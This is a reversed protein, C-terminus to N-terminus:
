LKVAPRRQTPIPGLRIAGSGHGGQYRHDEAASRARAEPGEGTGAVGLLIPGQGAGTLFGQELLCLLPEGADDVHMTIVVPKAIDFGELPRAGTLAAFFGPVAVALPQQRLAKSLGVMDDNIAKYGRFVVRGVVTPTGDEVAAAPGATHERVWERDQPSLKELPISTEKGGAARLVVKGDELKVFEAERSFKGSVDTWTRTTATEAARTAVPSALLALLLVPIWVCAPRLTAM